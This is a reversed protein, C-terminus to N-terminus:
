KGAKYEAFLTKFEAAAKGPQKVAEAEKLNPAKDGVVVLAVMGLPYHPRCEIGYIGSATFKVTVDQSMKGQFPAAGKPMMGKISAADHGKDTAIFHVSDGPKIRILNPSFVFSHGSADRNLMKVDVTAAQASAALVLVMAAGMLISSLGRM